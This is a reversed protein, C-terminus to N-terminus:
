RPLNPLLILRSLTSNEFANIFLASSSTEIRIEKPDSLDSGGHKAIHRLNKLDYTDCNSYFDVISSATYHKGYQTFHARQFAAQYQNRRDLEKLARKTLWIKSLTDWFAPNAESEAEQHNLKQRKVQPKPTDKQSVELNQRKRPCLARSKQMLAFSM